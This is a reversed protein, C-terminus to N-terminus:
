NRLCDHSQNKPGKDHGHVIFVRNSPEQPLQTAQVAQPSTPLDGLESLREELTDVAQQLLAVNEAKSETLYGHVRGISIENGAFSIPGQNFDSASRYRRYDDTAPGFTRALAEDISASLADLEPSHFRKKVSGPDWAKLADLPKKLREVSLRLYIATMEPPSPPPAATRKAM